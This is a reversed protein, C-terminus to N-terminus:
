AVVSERFGQRWFGGEAIDFGLIGKLWTWSARLTDEPGQPAEFLAFFTALAAKTVGQLGRPTGRGVLQRLVLSLNFGATHILLRKRINNHGRLHTRRMGGAASYCHAFTRELKESRSRLLRRGRAGRIRRRNGYTAKQAEEKGKWRRRGRNPESIYTRIGLDRQTLLVDNSHYGKDGILESLIEGDLAAAAEPDELVADFVKMVEDLTEGLSKTDGRDAPQITCGVIAGTEMDVAHEAKHALRVRGDKMRTVKADKDHPNVWDKNSTRKKRKRDFQRLEDPNSAEVGEEEALRALFEPYSEGSDRRQINRMAANAELTTGDIGLTKGRVLGKRALLALVWDFVAEHTEVDFLRRTRSLTSHCPPAETLEYGLFERLTISDAVRWALARESNIDEFFGILLMRFYIGPVLSPRGKPETYFRRCAEEVFGDFGEDRLLKRLEEYFPHGPPRVLSDTELWLPRQKERRKGMAM